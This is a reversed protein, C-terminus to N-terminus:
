GDSAGSDIRGAGPRISAKVVISNDSFKGVGLKYQMGPVQEVWPRVITLLRRSGSATLKIYYKNCQNDKKVLGRVGFEGWLLEDCLIHNEKESFSQTSIRILFNSGRNPYKLYSGDDMYWVALGLGRNQKSSLVEIITRPLKKIREKRGNSGFPRLIYNGDSDRKYWNHGLITFLPCYSTNLRAQPGGRVERGKLVSNTSGLFSLKSPDKMWKHFCNSIKWRLYEEQKISHPEFYNENRNPQNKNYNTTGDGLMSGYIIQREFSTLKTPLNVPPTGFRGRSIWGHKQVQYLQKANM